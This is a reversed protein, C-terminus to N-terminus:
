KASGSGSGAKVPPPAAETADVTTGEELTPVAIRIIREDGTLGSSIEVTAGTDREITIKTFHVRKSADVTALRVGKADSYLATAPVEIVRHPTSADLSAQVFMGPLLAGDPNPVQVETTMTHLDNDLSGASRTVKGEFVKGGYERVTIKVAAGPKVTTSLNQPVDLYIRVPDTAVVTFLPVTGGTTILAGREISRSSITGAFPATVKSFGQLEVLRRVNAEMAAVSAEAAHVTAEDTKAKAQTEEVQGKSVLNQDALGEYRKSNSQSYDRAATAQGVQAKAAALQARAQSLEALLDPTDIEALVQGATVKDGLDVKWSRVYGTVRAYLKAEELPRVTGPLALPRNSDLLKPKIVEVRLLSPAGAEVVPEAHGKRMYKFYGFALGGGVVAAAVVLVGLRSGKGPPPLEFGLDEPGESENPPVAAPTPAESM